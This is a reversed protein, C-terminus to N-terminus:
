KSFLLLGLVILIAVPWFLGAMVGLFISPIWGLGLGLFWGYTKIAYVWSGFFVSVGVFFGILSRSCGSHKYSFSVNPQSFRSHDTSTYRNPQERNQEQADRCDGIDACFYKKLEQNYILKDVSLNRHCNCCQEIVIVETM